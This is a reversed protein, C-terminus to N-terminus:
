GRQDIVEVHHFVLAVSLVGPIDHITNIATVIDSEHATDLTVIMKGNPHAGHVEAGPMRGIAAIVGDRNAPLAHVVLSSLHDEAPAHGALHQFPRLMLQRRRRDVEGKM